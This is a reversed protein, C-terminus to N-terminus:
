VFPYFLDEADPWHIRDEHVIPDNTKDVVMEVGRADTPQHTLKGTLCPEAEPVDPRWYYWARAMYAFDRVVFRGDGGV